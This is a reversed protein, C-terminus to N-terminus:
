NLFAHLMNKRIHNHSVKPMMKPKHIQLTCSTLRENLWVTYPILHVKVSIANHRQKNLGRANLIFASM